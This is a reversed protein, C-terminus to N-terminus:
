KTGEKTTEKETGKTDDTDNTHSGADPDEDEEKPTYAHAMEYAIYALLVATIAAMTIIIKTTM